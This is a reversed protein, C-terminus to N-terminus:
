AVVMLILICSIEMVELTGKFEEKAPERQWGQSRAVVSKNETPITKNRSNWTFLIMHFTTKQTQSRKNLMISELNM